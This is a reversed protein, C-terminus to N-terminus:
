KLRHSEPPYRVSSLEGGNGGAKRGEAVLAEGEEQGEGEGEGEAMGYVRRRRGQYAVAQKAVAM